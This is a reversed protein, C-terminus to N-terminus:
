PSYVPVVSKGEDDRITVTAQEIQLFTIGVLRARVTLIFSEDDEVIKDDMITINVLAMSEEPGISFEMNPFVFDM